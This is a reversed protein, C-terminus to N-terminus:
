DKQRQAKKYVAGNIQLASCKRMAATQWVRVAQGLTTVKPGQNRHSVTRGVYCWAFSCNQISGIAAGKGASQLAPDEALLWYTRSIPNMHELLCFCWEVRHETYGTRNLYIPWHTHSLTSYCREINASADTELRTPIYGNGKDRLLHQRQWRTAFWILVNMQSVEVTATILPCRASRFPQLLLAVKLLVQPFWHKERQVVAHDAGSAVCQCKRGHTM